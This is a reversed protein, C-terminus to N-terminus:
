LRKRMLVVPMELGDEFAFTARRLTEYGLRLYFGTANLPARVNLTNCGAAIAEAELAGVLGRGVGRRGAAPSVYCANLEDNQLMAIGFGLLADGSAAVLTTGGDHEAERFLQEARAISVQPAWHRLVDNSYPGGRLAHVAAHHVRAMALADSPRAPRLEFPAM